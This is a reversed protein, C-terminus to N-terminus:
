TFNTKENEFEKIAEEKLQQLGANRRFKGRTAPDRNVHNVLEEFQSSQIKLAEYLALLRTDTSRSKAGMFKVIQYVGQSASMSGVVISILLAIFHWDIKM